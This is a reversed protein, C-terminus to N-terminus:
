RKGKKGAKLAKDSPKAKENEVGETEDNPQDTESEGAETETDESITEDEAEELFAAHGHKELSAALSEEVDLVDGRGATLGPMRVNELLRIKM